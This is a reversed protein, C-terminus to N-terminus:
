KTPSFEHHFEYSNKIDDILKNLLENGTTKDLKMWREALMLKITYALVKEITFYHFFTHEDLYRWKLQDLAKEKDAAESKAEAIKFIEEHFPLLDEFYDAKLRKNLLLVAVPNEKETVILQEATDFGYKQCNFATLINKMNLEFRLWNKLFLNKTKLASEYYLGILINETETTLTNEEREQTWEMFSLMYQPLVPFETEPSLQEEMEAKSINGLPNFAKEQRFLLQLFNSNDFTAFLTEVLKLDKPVLQENLESRFASSNLAPKNDDFFLDPLGAILCYYAKKLM